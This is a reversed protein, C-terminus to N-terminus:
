RQGDGVPKACRNTLNWPTNNIFPTQHPAHITNTLPLNFLRQPQHILPHLHNNLRARHHPQRHRQKVLLKPPHHLPLSPLFPPIQPHHKTSPINIQIPKPLEDCSLSLSFFPSHWCFRYVWGEMMLKFPYTCTKCASGGGDGATMILAFEAIRILAKSERQGLYGTGPRPAAATPQGFWGM